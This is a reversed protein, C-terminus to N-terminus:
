TPQDGRTIRYAAEAIEMLEPSEVYKALQGLAQAVAEAPDESRRTIESYGDGNNHGRMGLWVTIM